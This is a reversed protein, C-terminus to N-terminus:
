TCDEDANRATVARTLMQNAATLHAVEGMLARERRMASELKHRWEADAASRAAMYAGNLKQAVEASRWGHRNHLGEKSEQILEGVMRDTKGRVISLLENQEKALRALQEAAADAAEDHLETLLKAGAAALRALLTDPTAANRELIKCQANFEVELRDMSAKRASTLRECLQTSSEERGRRLPLVMTRVVERAAAEGAPANAGSGDEAKRWAANYLLTKLAVSNYPLPAGQRRVLGSQADNEAPGEASDDADHADGSNDTGGDDAADEAAARQAMKYIPAPRRQAANARRQLLHRIGGAGAGRAPTGGDSM